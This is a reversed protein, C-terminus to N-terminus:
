SWEKVETRELEKEKRSKTGGRGNMEGCREGKEEQLQEGGGRGVSKRLCNRM